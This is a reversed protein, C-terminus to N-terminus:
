DWTDAILSDDDPQPPAANKMQEKYLRRTNVKQIEREIILDALAFPAPSETQNSLALMAKSESIDLRYLAQLFGELDTELKHEILGALWLRFAETSQTHTTSPADDTLNFDKSVLLVAEPLLDPHM